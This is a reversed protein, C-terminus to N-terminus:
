IQKLFLHLILVNKIPQFLLSLILYIPSINNLLYYAVSISCKLCPNLCKSLKLFFIYTILAAFGNLYILKPIKPLARIILNSFLIGALWIFKSNNQLQVANKLAHTNIRYFLVRFTSFLFLLLSTTKCSEFVTNKSPLVSRQLYYIHLLHCISVKHFLHHYPSNNPLVVLIKEISNINKSSVQTSHKAKIFSCDVTKTAAISLSRTLYIRKSYLTSYVIKIVANTM